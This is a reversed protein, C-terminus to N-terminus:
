YLINYLYADQKGGASLPLINEGDENASRTDQEWFLLYQAPSHKKERRQRDM